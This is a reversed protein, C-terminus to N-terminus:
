IHTLKPKIQSICMNGAKNQAAAILGNTIHKAIELLRSTEIFSLMLSEYREKAIKLQWPLIMLYVKKKKILGTDWAHKTNESPTVWELQLARPDHKNGKKHNVITKHVPDPNTVFKKAVLIHLKVNVGDLTVRLYGRRDDFPKLIKGTRKNRVQGLRNLEYNPHGDIPYWKIRM